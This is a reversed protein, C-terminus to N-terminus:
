KDTASGYDASICVKNKYKAIFVFLFVSFVIKWIM